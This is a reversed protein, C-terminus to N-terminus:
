KRKLSDLLSNFHEENETVTRQPGYFKVFYTGEKMVIIAGMMRYDEREVGPAFPAPKDVFTGSLDVVHVEQGAITRKETDKSKDGDLESFQGKWRDINDELSGGSFMMTIRGANKDGESPAASFEHEIIRSKPKERKWDDPATLVFKGAEIQRDDAEDAARSVIAPTLGSALVAAIVFLRTRMTINRIIINGITM